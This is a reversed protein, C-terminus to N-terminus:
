ELIKYEADISTKLRIFRRMEENEEKLRERERLNREVIIKSIFYFLNM